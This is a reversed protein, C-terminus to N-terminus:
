GKTPIKYTVEKVLRKMGCCECTSYEDPTAVEFPYSFTEPCGEIQGNTENVGHHFVFPAGCSCKKPENTFPGNEDYEMLEFADFTRLHGNACLYQDYGEYSM